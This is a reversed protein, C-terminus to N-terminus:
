AFPHNSILTAIARCERRLAALEVVAHRNHKTNIIPYYKSILGKEVQQLAPIAEIWSVLLHNDIWRVVEATDSASFRYNKQNKSGALSGPVPRHGLIAGIARFFTSPSQHRLDQEILRNFLSVTAIGIYILSTRREVLLDRFTKPLSGPDDIFIAYYGPRPPVLAPADAATCM